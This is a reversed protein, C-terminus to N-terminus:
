KKGRVALFIRFAIGAVLQLGILSLPIFTMCKGLVIFKNSLLFVVGVILSVLLLASYVTVIRRVRKEADPSLTKEPIIRRMLWMYLCGVGEIVAEGIFEVFFEFLCEM